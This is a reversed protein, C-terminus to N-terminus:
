SGGSLALKLGQPDEIAFGGDEVVVYMRQGEFVIEVRMGEQAQVTLTRAASPASPPAFEM